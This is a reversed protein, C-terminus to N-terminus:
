QNFRPIFLAGEGGERLGWPGWSWALFLEELGLWEEPLQLSLMRLPILVGLNPSFGPHWGLAPEM